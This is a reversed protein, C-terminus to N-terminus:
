FLVHQYTGTFCYLGFVVPMRSDLGCIMREPVAYMAQGFRKGTMRKM